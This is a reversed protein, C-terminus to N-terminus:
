STYESVSNKTDHETIPFFTTPTVNSDEIYDGEGTNEIERLRYPTDTKLIAYKYYSGSHKDRTEVFEITGKITIDSGDDVTTTYHP